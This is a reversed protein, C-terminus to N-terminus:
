FVLQVLDGLGALQSQPPNVERVRVNGMARLGAVGRVAPVVVAYASNFPTFNLPQVAGPFGVESIDRLNTAM